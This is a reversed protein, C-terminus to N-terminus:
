DWVLSFEIGSLGLSLPFITDGGIIAQYFFFFNLRLIKVYSIFFYYLNWFRLWFVDWDQTGKIKFTVFTIVHQLYWIRGYKLARVTICRLFYHLVDARLSLLCKLYYTGFRVLPCVTHYEAYIHGKHVSCVTILLDM